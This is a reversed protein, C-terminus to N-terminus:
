EEFPNFARIFAISLVLPFNMFKSLSRSMEGNLIHALFAFLKPEKLCAAEIYNKSLMQVVSLIINHSESVSAMCLNSKM